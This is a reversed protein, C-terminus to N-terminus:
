KVQKRMAKIAVRDVGSGGNNKSVGAGSSMRKEPKHHSGVQGKLNVIESDRKAITQNKVEMDKKLNTLEATVNVLEEKTLNHATVEEEHAIVEDKLVNAVEVLNTTLEENSMTADVEKIETVVDAEIEVEVDVGNQEIIFKGSSEGSAITVTDGVKLVQDESEPTSFIIKGEKDTYDYNKVVPVVLDENKLLGAIKSLIGRAKTEAMRNKTKLNTNYAQLSSIFGHEILFEPFRIAEEEMIVKLVEKDGGTRDAYITLIRDKYARLMDATAQASQETVDYADTRVEHILARANPNATRQEFPAALLLVTAMSHCEGVIHAYINKGSTRLLDYISFGEDVSGGPSNIILKFDTENPNDALIKKIGEASVSGEGFYEAWSDYPGIVNDIQIEIM